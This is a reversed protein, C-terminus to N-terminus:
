SRQGAPASPATACANTNSTSGPVACKPLSHARTSAANASTTPDFPLAALSYGFSVETVIDDVICGRAQLLAAIQTGISPNRVSLFKGPLTGDPVLESAVRFTSHDPEFIAVFGGPRVVRVVEDLVAGPDPVHQLVREIRCGAFANPAFPLRAGDAQVLPCGVSKSRALAKASADVGIPHAGATALRGLDHGVGCGLDLVLEGPADRQAIAAVYAKRSTLGRDTKDLYALLANANGSADLHAFGSM